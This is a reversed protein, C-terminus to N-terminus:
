SYFRAIIDNYISILDNTTNQILYEKATKSAGSSLKEKKRLAEEMAYTFGKIGRNALIGNYGTSVVERSTIHNRAVVPLRASMAELINIGITDTISSYLFVDAMSYWTFLQDNPINGLFHVRSRNKSRQVLGELHNKYLGDGALLLMGKDHKKAWVSFASLIYPINKEKALRSVVLFVPVNPPISYKHRATSKMGSVYFPSVLGATSAYYINQHPFKKQLTHQLWQTTAIVGHVRLCLDKVTIHYLWKKISTPIWRAHTELYQDYQTHYTFVVPAHVVEGLSLAFSGVPKYHHVHIIDWRRKKLLNMQSQSLSPMIVPYDRPVFPVNRITQFAIYDPDPNDKHDPGIIVVAHGLRRLESVTRMTSVAVGNVSPPYTATIILINM